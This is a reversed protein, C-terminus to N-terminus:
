IGTGVSTILSRHFYFLLDLIVPARTLATPGLYKTDPAYSHSIVLFELRQSM